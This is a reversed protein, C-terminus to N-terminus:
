AFTRVKGNRVNGGDSVWKDLSSTLAFCTITQENWHHAHKFSLKELSVRLKFCKICICVCVCVYM